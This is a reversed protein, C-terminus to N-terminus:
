PPDKELGWETCFNMSSNHNVSGEGGEMSRESVWCKGMPPLNDSAIGGTQNTNHDNASELEPHSMWQDTTATPRTPRSIETPGERRPRTSSPLLDPAIYCLVPRLLPLSAVILSINMEGVTWTAVRANDHLFDKHSSIEYLTYLRIISTICAFFGCAFLFLLAIKQRRPLNLHRLEPLPLVFLSFDTFVHFLASIFAWPRLNICVGPLSPIWFKNVPVCIFVTVVISQISFTVIFTGVIWITRRTRKTDVAGSLVFIRYYQFLLSVKTFTLATSYCLFSAYLAKLPKLLEKETLEWEHLGMGDNAQLKTLVTFATSCLM